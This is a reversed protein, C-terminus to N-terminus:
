LFKVPKASSIRVPGDHEGMTKVPNKSKKGKESKTM